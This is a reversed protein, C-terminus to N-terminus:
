LSLSDLYSTQLISCLHIHSKKFNNFILGFGSMNPCETVFIDSFLNFINRVPKIIRVTNEYPNLEGMMM